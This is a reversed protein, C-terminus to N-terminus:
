VKVTAAVLLTPVPGVEAGEGDIVGIPGGPAGVLTLAEDPCFPADVTVQLVGAELPPAGIM